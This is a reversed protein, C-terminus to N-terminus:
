PNFSTKSKRLRAQALSDAQRGQRALAESLPYSVSTLLLRKEPSFLEPHNRSALCLFGQLPEAKDRDFLPIIAMAGRDHWPLKFAALQAPIAKPDFIQLAEAEQVKKLLGDQLAIGPLDQLTPWSMFANYEEWYANRQYVVIDDLGQLSSRLFEMATSLQEDFPKDSGLLRGMGYIVALEHSTSHLRGLSSQLLALLLPQGTAPNQRIWERLQSGRIAVLKGDQTASAMAARASDEFIASEGFLNGRGLVGLVKPPFHRNKSVHQITIEGNLIGFCYPSPEGQCFITEGTRTTRLSAFPTLQDLVADGLADFGQLSKLALRLETSM